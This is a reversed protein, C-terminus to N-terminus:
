SLYKAYAWRIRAATQQQREAGIRVDCLDEADESFEKFIQSPMAKEAAQRLVHVECLLLGQDKYFLEGYETPHSNTLIRDINRLQRLMKGQKRAKSGRKETLSSSLYHLAFYTVLIGPTLGVFGFVLEQSKLLSDIGGMAVEVDVKTKQIQILLARILNGRLSGM